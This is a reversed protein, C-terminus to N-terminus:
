NTIGSKEEDLQVRYSSLEPLYRIVSSLISVLEKDPIETSDFLYPEFLVAIYQAEEVTIDGKLLKIKVLDSVTDLLEAKKM